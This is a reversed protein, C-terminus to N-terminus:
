WHVIEEAKRKKEPRLASVTARVREQTSVLRSFCYQRRCSGQSSRFIETSSGQHPAAQQQEQQEQEQEQEQAATSPTPTTNHSINTHPSTIANSGFTVYYTTIFHVPTKDQRGGRREKENERGDELVTREKGRLVYWVARHLLVIFRCISLSFLLCLVFCFLVFL